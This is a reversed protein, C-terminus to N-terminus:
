LNLDEALKRAAPSSKAKRKAGQRMRSQTYFPFIDSMVYLLVYYDPKPVHINPYHPQGAFGNLRKLQKNTITKGIIAFTVAAPSLQMGLALGNAFLRDFFAFFGM